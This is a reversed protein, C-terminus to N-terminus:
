ILAPVVLALAGLIGTVPASLEIAAGASSSTSASTSTAEGTTSSLGASSRASEVESVQSSDYTAVGDTEITSEAYYNNDTANFCSLAYDSVEFVSSEVFVIDACVYFTDNYNTQVPQGDSGVQDEDDNQYIAQITAVDGANISQPQDPMFFCTHGINLESSVNGNYWEEFEDQTTPDSNYSISLKVNYSIYKAIFAVFGDDLPFETRNESVSAFSGCPAINDADASWQRVEPYLFTVPGMSSTASSGHKTDALAFAAPVPAPVAAVYQAIALATLPALFMTDHNSTGTFLIPFSTVAYDGGWAWAWLM